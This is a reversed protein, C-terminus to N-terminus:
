ADHSQFLDLRESSSRGGGRVELVGAQDVDLGVGVFATEQRAGEALPLEGLLASWHADHLAARNV